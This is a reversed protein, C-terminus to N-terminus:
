MRDYFLYWKAEIPRLYTDERLAAANDLNTMVKGQWEYEKPVYEIGKAWTSSVALPGHGRSFIFRLVGDHGLPAVHVESGLETAWRKCQQDWEKDSVPKEIKVDAKLRETAMEALKLFAEHHSRFADLLIEDKPSTITLGGYSNFANIAWLLSSGVLVLGACILFFTRKPKM